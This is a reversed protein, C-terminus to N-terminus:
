NCSEKKPSCEDYGCIFSVFRKHLIDVNTEGIMNAVQDKSMPSYDKSALLKHLYEPYTDYTACDLDKICSKQEETCILLFPKGSSIIEFTSDESFTVIKDSREIDENLTRRIDSVDFAKLVDGLWEIDKTRSRPRMRVLTSVKMKMKLYNLFSALEVKNQDHVDPMVILLDYENHEVGSPIKGGITQLPAGFVIIKETDVGDSIYIEKERASCCLVKDCYLPIYNFSPKFFCGHQLLITEIGHAKLFSISPIFYFKQHEVFWKGQFSTLSDFVRKTFADYILFTAIQFKFLLYESNTKEIGIENFVYKLRKRASFVDALSFTPFFANIENKQFYRAYKIALRFHFNPMYVLKYTLGSAISDISRTRFIPDLCSVFVFDEKSLSVKKPIRKLFFYVNSFISLLFYFSFTYKTLLGGSKLRCYEDALVNVTEESVDLATHIQKKYIDYLFSM